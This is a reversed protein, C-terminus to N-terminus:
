KFVIYIMYAIFVTTWSHIMVSMCWIVGCLKSEEPTDCLQAKTRPTEAIKLNINSRALAHTRKTHALNDRRGHTVSGLQNLEFLRSM